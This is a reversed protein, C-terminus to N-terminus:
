RIQVLDMVLRTLKVALLSLPFSFFSLLPSVLLNRTAFRFCRSGGFVSRGTDRKCWDQPPSTCDNNAVTAFLRFSAPEHIWLPPSCAEVRSHPQIYFPRKKRLSLSLSFLLCFRVICSSSYTSLVSFTTFSFPHIVHFSHLFSRLCSSLILAFHRPLPQLLSIPPHTLDSAPLTCRILAM